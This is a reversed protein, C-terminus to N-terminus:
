GAERDVMCSFLRSEWAVVEHGSRTLVRWQGDAAGAFVDALEPEHGDRTVIVTDGEKVPPSTSRAPHPGGYHARALREPSVAAIEEATM